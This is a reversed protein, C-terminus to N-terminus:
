FLSRSTRPCRLPANIRTIGKSKPRGESNLRAQNISKSTLEDVGNEPM